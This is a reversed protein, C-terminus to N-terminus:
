PMDPSDFTLGPVYKCFEKLIRSYNGEIEAAHHIYPGEILKKEWKPFDGFEAWLYNGFAEPGNVTQCEGALLYTEERDMEFRAITYHGPKVEWNPRAKDWLKASAEPNKVAYPFTGCHWLLEANENEPHRMMFEGFVPHSRGRAACSLLATTIAGHLDTECTVYLREDGLLSMALCPMAGFAPMMASWCETAIVRCQNEEAIERFLYKFALTKKLIEDSFDGVDIRNKLDAVSMEIDAAKENMIRKMKEMVIVMNIPVVEIGFKEMLAAENIMVSNYPQPRLGVQAIRLSQFNKVMCVVALFDEFGNSFVEAEINCNEIHSFPVGVRKLQRSIAFLGCQADVYRVKDVITDQPAWILTPKRLLRAVKGAVEECGFNCNIIFLGDVGAETFKQAVTEAQSIDFMLGEENLFDLDVFEVDPDVFNKRIYELFKIKNKIAYEPSSTGTNPMGRRVPALGIKVKYDLM